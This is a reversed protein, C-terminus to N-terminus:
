IIRNKPLELSLLTLNASKQPVQNMKMQYTTSRRNRNRSGGAKPNKTWQIFLKISKIIDLVLYFFYKRVFFVLIRKCFFLYKEM